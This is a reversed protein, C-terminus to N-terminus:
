GVFELYVVLQIVNLVLSGVVATVTMALFSQTGTYALNTNFYRSVSVAFKLRLYMRLILCTYRLIHFVLDDEIYALPVPATDVSLKHDIVSVPYWFLVKIKVIM